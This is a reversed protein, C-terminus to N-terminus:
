YKNQQANVLSPHTPSAFGAILMVGVGVSLAALACGNKLKWELGPMFGFAAKVTHLDINIGIKEALKRAANKVDDKSYGCDAHTLSNYYAYATCQLITATILNNQM